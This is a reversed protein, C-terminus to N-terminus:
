GSGTSRAGGAVLDLLLLDGADLVPPCSSFRPPPFAMKLDARLPLRPDGPVLEVGAAPGGGVRGPVACRLM